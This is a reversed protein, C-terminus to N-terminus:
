VLSRDDLLAGNKVFRSDGAPEVRLDMEPHIAPM